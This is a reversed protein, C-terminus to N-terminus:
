EAAGNFFGQYENLYTEETKRLFVTASGGSFVFQFHVTGVLEDLLSCRVYLTDPATWAACSSCFQGYGPFRGAAHRGFGFPLTYRKGKEYLSLAGATRNEPLDLSFRAFPAEAERIRYVAGSVFASAPSQAEGPVTPLSLRSEKQRLAKLSGRDEPLPSASLAPLINGYLADYIAQTGGPMEQTDAATVCVLEQRPLVVVLQGGMGYCAFGGHRTMWFQYGYGFAEEAFTAAHATPTQFACAQRLYGEPLLRRGERTKGHNFLLLGLRMLDSPRAMLGSGGMSVGFPDRLFYADESFGIENLCKERLYDLLPRGTLKEALACLTHACSTDYRFMRGPPHSPPTTFFSEVWDREPHLKYTTASHCTQMKLMDRITMDRIWPHVKEPLKEPFYEAIGDDPSLLGDQELLGVALSVLSKSVSFMRHLREPGYPAYYAESVLRGRRALLFAHMPVRARELQDLLGSVAASPIGASEPSVVPIRTM